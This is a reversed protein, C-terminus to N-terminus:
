KKEANKLMSVLNKSKGIYKVVKQRIKGNIRVSKVLYYYNNNNIKKVRLFVM